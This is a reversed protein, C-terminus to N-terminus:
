LLHLKGRELSNAIEASIAGRVHLGFVPLLLQLVEAICKVRRTHEGNQQLLQQSEARPLGGLLYM